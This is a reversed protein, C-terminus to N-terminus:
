DHNIRARRCEEAWIRAFDRKFDDTTTEPMVTEFTLILNGRTAGPTTEWGLEPICVEKKGLVGKGFRLSEITEGPHRFSVECESFLEGLDVEKVCRIDNDRIAVRKLGRVPALKIEVSYDVNQLLSRTDAEVTIVKGPTTRPPIRVTIETERNFRGTGSCVTCIPSLMDGILGSGHCSKCARKNAIALGGGLRISFERIGHGECEMCPLTQLRGFGICDPCHARVRTRVRKEAGDWLEQLTLKLSMKHTQRAHRTMRERSSRLAAEAAADFARNVEAVTESFITRATNEQDRRTSREELIVRYAESVRLFEEPDGGKDPHLRMAARLFHKRISDDSADPSVGLIEFASMVVLSVWLYHPNTQATCLKIAQTRFLTLPM